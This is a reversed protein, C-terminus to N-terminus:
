ERELDMESLLSNVSLMYVFNYLLQLSDTDLLNTLDSPSLTANRDGSLFELLAKVQKKSNNDLSPVLTLIESVQKNM